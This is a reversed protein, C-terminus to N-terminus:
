PEDGQGGRTGQDRRHRHPAIFDIRNSLWAAGPGGPGFDRDGCWTWGDHCYLLQVGIKDGIKAGLREPVFALNVRFEKEKRLLEHCNLRSFAPVQHPVFPRDNVWWRVLCRLAPSGVHFATDSTVVLDKGQLAIKFGPRRNSPLFTPLGGPLAQDPAVFGVPGFRPWNPLAIGAAPGSQPFEQVLDLFFWPMWPHFAADTGQFPAEAILRGEANTVQVRYPGVKDIPLDRVFLYTGKPWEKDRGSWRTCDANALEKGFTFFTHVPGLPVSGEGQNAPTYGETLCYLLAGSWRPGTIAELGLRVKVGGGLDIPPVAQLEKWSKVVPIAAPASPQQAGILPAV